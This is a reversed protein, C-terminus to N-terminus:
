GVTAAIESRARNLLTLRARCAERRRTAAPDERTLGRLDEDSIGGLSAYFGALLGRRARLVQCHVVAKPVAKAMRARVADVYAHVSSAVARLHADAGDFTTQPAVDADLLHSSEGRGESADGDDVGNPENSLERAGLRRFFDADFYSAEMAVLAAVMSEAERKHRDLAALAAAAVAARLAPFRRLAEGRLDGDLGDTSSAVIGVANSSKGVLRDLFAGVSGRIPSSSSSPNGVASSALPPNSIGGRSSREVAREVMNQLVRDVARVCQAVPDHLADLGLEILRRIGLEPAVLHPQYGDSADIVAKVNKPSYFSRLDIARLAGVLKEEFIARISEGGGMGSDLATAFDKEFAGCSLLVEHTLAGRDSPLARGLRALEDEMARASSEIAEQIKPVQRRVNQGLIEVLMRVLTETGTNVHAYADRKEDFFRRENDRATAMDTRSDIDFQSRNVVACWGHELCLARGELVDRADTGRDMLDLKTLVGITRELNPDVERAVRVGDSTAIDANAPSVAVIVVNPPAIFAKAMEEIDRVISAPQDSTAVKTLGPMDVLTLNPVHPSRVSLMIPESSVAKSGPGLTRNTEAEIEARVAEFDDFVEGPRHLFRATDGADPDDECHLQLVLPRRTCIGAGRPLFDRGVISELVSSKGSSQGGVVVIQPLTEWM